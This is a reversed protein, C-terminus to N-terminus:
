GNVAEQQMLKRVVLAARQPDQKVFQRIQETRVKVDLQPSMGGTGGAAALLRTEIEDLETPEAEGKEARRRLAKSIPRAIAFLVFLAALLGGIQRAVPIIWPNDWWPLPESILENFTHASVTVADGRASDFGVASQVLREVKALEAASVPKKGNKLAVAISLRKVTGQPRHTVSIERGVDFSRSYTEATQAQAQAGSQGAAGAPQTAVQSAPPPLNSTAGPIGVAPTTSGTNISKNGEERRLAKEDDPYSEKTSQSETFDMEAHVETSFNGSGVMPELLAAVAQRYREEVRLQHQFNDNEATQDLQSLLEGSQDVVSVQEPSLGPVSSAILHQIADVQASSLSRGQQLTLMVSAASKTDDRVFVSPQAVALHIRASKVADIAEITRALDAERAGKLTQDEVARSSGMPLGSIVADGSPAAKPLGQSALMMRAKHVDSEGVTISGTAADLRYDVGASQLADAVAAKDAEALGQFLPLQAPTQFSLWAAAAIGAGGLLVAGPLAKRIAPQRFLAPVIQRGNPITTGVLPIGSSPVLADSPSNAETM